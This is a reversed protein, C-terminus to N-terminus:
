YFYNLKSNDYKSTMGTAAFHGWMPIHIESGMHLYAAALAYTSRSCILIDSHILCYLDFSEDNSRITKYPLTIDGLPSSVIIVEHTPYKEICKQIIPKLKEDKIPSQANYLNLNSNLGISRYYEFEDKQSVNINNKNINDKFFDSSINGDYDIRNTFNIDDLRLHVCITKKWNYNIKYLTTKKIENSLFSSFNDQIYSHIDLKCLTCCSMNLKCWNDTDLKTETLDKEIKKNNNIYDILNNLIVIFISNNYRKNDIKNIFLNMKDAIIIQCFYSTINAGLRDIRNKISLSMYM